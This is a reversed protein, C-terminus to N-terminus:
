KFKYGIGFGYQENGGFRLNPTLFIKDTLFVERDLFVSGEGLVTAVGVSTKFQLVRQAIGVGVWGFLLAGIITKESTPPLSGSSLFQNWDEITYTGIKSGIIVFVSVIVSILLWIAMPYKRRWGLYVFMLFGVIFSLQYFLDYYFNGNPIAINFTFDM